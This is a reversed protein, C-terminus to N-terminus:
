NENIADALWKITTTGYLTTTVTDIVTMGYDSQTLTDARAVRVGLILFVVAFIAQIRKM